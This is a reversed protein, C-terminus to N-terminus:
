IITKIYSASKILEEENKEFNENEVVFVNIKGANKFVSPFDICGEGIACDNGDRNDKVHIVPIRDRYKAAYEEPACNGNVVHHTDMEFFVNEKDCNELFVDIPKVSDISIFEHAHNHYGFLIGAERFKKGYENLEIAFQKWEQINESYLWPVCLSYAGIQRAFDLVGNFDNRLGDINQHIGAVELNYKDLEHLVEKPTLGFFGAFEVCDYGYEYAKSISAPLGRSVSINNISYLQLGIKM